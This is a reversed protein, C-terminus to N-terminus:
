YGLGGLIEGAPKTSPKGYFEMLLDCRDTFCGDVGFCTMLRYQWKENLTYAHVALGCRHAPGVNWPWCLTGVPGVGAGIQAARKLMSTWGGEKELVKSEVLYIRPVKPALEGLTVLSDAHFSQFIVPPLGGAGDEMWGKEQLVAVLSKEIGPYHEPSKTEIYVPYKKGKAGAIDLVEALTLIKQGVYGKQAREPYKRNFWSGADLQKLEAMTFESLDQKERGPFVQAANTTREPTDDHMAVVVGDRTLHVDMELYDAGLDRALEYAPKTEEPAWWSAGRHAIVLHRPVPPHAADLARLPLAVWYLWGALVTLVLVGLVAFFVKKWRSM